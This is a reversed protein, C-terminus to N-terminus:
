LPWAALRHYLPRPGLHSRVLVMEAAPWSPGLYGALTDRDEDVAARALLDGPRALTLHPRYPRRDYPLRARRLERRSARSLAVLADLDGKLGVWLVTFRGRGFRGGGGLQLRPPGVAIETGAAGAGGGVGVVDSAGAPESARAAERARAAEGARAPNGTRAADVSRPPKAPRRWTTAARGLAAEVDPLRSDDVEGLFVLTVHLTERAALRVNVGDAAVEGIRLRSVQETIDDLAEPSPYLAM